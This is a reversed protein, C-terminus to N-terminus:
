GRAPQEVSAVFTGDTKWWDLIRREIGPFDARVPVDPYPRDQSTM